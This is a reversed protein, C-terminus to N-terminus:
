APTFTIPLGRIGWVGPFPRWHIDGTLVPKTMRQAILHARAIYQGLCLHMGRGFALHRNEHERDPNFNDPDPFASPDRGLVSASFFLMTDKPILVDRYVFDENILRPITSPNTFRLGEEVVKVCYGFEAACRNYIEPRQLLHNMLLTLVNKSTDYGAAFLFILTDIVEQENLDGAVAAGLLGDLLDEEAHLRKGARREAMLETVFAEMVDYADELQPLLEPILSYSLGLTELSSRLRPLVDSSAGIIACMVTIPFYSAFEEFDISRRSVWEDLLEEAVQRMLHRHRNAARPSFMPALVDRM